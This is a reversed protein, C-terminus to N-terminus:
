LELPSVSTGVKEHTKILIFTLSYDASSSACKFSLLTDTVEDRSFAMFGNLSLTGSCFHLYMQRAHVASTGIFCSGM